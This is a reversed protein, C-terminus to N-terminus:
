IELGDMKPEQADISNWNHAIEKPKPLVLFRTHNCFIILEAEYGWNSSTRVLTFMILELFNGWSLTEENGVLYGEHWDDRDTDKRDM